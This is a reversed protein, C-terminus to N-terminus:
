HLPELGYLVGAAFAGLIDYRGAFYVRTLEAFVRAALLADSGAQHAREVDRPVSLLKAANELGGVMRQCHRMLHKVDFVLPGFYYRVLALFDDMRPPLRRGGLLAKVVYGFDYAGHFTVWIM